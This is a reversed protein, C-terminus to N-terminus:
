AVQAQKPRMPGKTHKKKEHEKKSFINIVYFFGLEM